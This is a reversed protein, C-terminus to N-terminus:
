KNSQNPQMATSVLAMLDGKLVSGYFDWGSDNVTPHIDEALYIADVSYRYKDGVQILRVTAAELGWKDYRKGCYRYNICLDTTLDDSVFAANVVKFSPTDALETIQELAQPGGRSNAIRDTGGHEQLYGKVKLLLYFGLANEFFEQTKKASTAPTTSTDINQM